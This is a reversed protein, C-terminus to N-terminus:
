SKIIIFIVAVNWNIMGDKVSLISKCSSDINVFFYCIKLIDWLAVDVVNSLNFPVVLRWFELVHNSILKKRLESM